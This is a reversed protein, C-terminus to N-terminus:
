MPACVISRREVGSVNNKFHKVSWHYVCVHLYLSAATLPLLWPVCFGGVLAMDYLAVLAAELGRDSNKEPM